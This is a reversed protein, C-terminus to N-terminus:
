YHVSYFTHAKQIPIPDYVGVGVGFLIGLAHLSSNKRIQTIAMQHNLDFIGPAILFQRYRSSTLFTGYEMQVGNLVHKERVRMFVANEIM